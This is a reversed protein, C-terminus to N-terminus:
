LSNEDYLHTRLYNCVDTPAFAMDLRLASSDVLRSTTYLATCQKGYALRLLWQQPRTSMTSIRKNNMRFALAEALDHITPDVGDSINYINVGSHPLGASVAKAVVRAIDTAHVVSRRAENGPFHFFTGRWVARALEQGFGTMGTCIIDPCRLILVPIRKHLAAFLGELLTWKSINDLASKEGPAESPDNRWYIDTSSVMVALQAEAPNDVIAVGPLAEKVYPEVFPAEPAYFAITETM